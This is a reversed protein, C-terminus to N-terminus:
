SLLIAAEEATLGLKALIAERSNLGPAVTNGNHANVVTKAKVEDKADIQLWLDGNDDLYPKEIIKVGAANLEELLESGNLNIPKNFKIM